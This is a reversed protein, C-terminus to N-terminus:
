VLARIAWKYRHHAEHVVVLEAELPVGLADLKARARESGQGASAQLRELYAKRVYAILRTMHESVIV